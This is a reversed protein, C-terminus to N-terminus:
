GRYLSVYSLIVECLSMYDRISHKLGKVCLYVNITNFGQYPSALGRLNLQIM